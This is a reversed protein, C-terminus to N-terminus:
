LSKRLKLFDGVAHLGIRFIKKMNLSNKGGRRPGFFIPFYTVGMGSHTYIVTMLVNTLPHNEPIKGIVQQLQDARMLRFPTNADQTYCGFIIWLVARLTRTVLVRQWGDRRHKRNGILLGGRERQQWLKDFDGPDTQGDSDTQFVYDAGEAIACRYGYLVTGGHGQNEKRVARLCPYRRALEGLLAWSGDTSGDDIIFLRSESGTRQAVPHWQRVVEELNSEENYAPIVIILRDKRNETM